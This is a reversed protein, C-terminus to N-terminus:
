SELAAVLLYSVAALVQSPTTAFDRCPYGPARVELDIQDVTMRQRSDNKMVPDHTLTPQAM